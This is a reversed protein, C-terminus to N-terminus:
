ENFTTDKGNLLAKIDEAVKRSTPNFKRALGFEATAKEKYDKDNTKRYMKIYFEGLILHLHFNNPSFEIAKKMLFEADDYYRRRFAALGSYLNASINDPNRVLHAKMYQHGLEVDGRSYYELAFEYDSFIYNSAAINGTFGAIRYLNISRNPLQYQTLVKAKEMIEPYDKRAKDLNSKDMLLHTIPYRNFFVTDVNAVGFMHILNRLANNQTFDAAYPGSVVAEPSLTTALDRSNLVTNFAVASTWQYYKLGGPIVAAAVALALFTRGFWAPPSFVSPALRMLLFVGATLIIAALFLVPQSDIFFFPRGFFKYVPNLLQYIPILSVVFLFVPFLLYGKRSLPSRARQLVNAAFVGALGCVPYIMITQYRPPRYNWIMLAGYASIVLAIMFLLGPTLGYLKNLWSKKFGARFIFILIMGWALLAPAVMRPFLRSRAGFSVFNYIFQELSKLAEPIGYLGLAQEQVYGTVSEAAQRYSFFYWFILIALFGVIFFAYRRLYVKLDPKYDHFYEYLAYFFFAPLYILGIIKGFFIGVALSIGALTIAYLRKGYILITFSLIAFFNMSNELFSLRGFFIQNYNSLIFIFYFLAAINGAARRLVFYFLILTPFSFLVGVLNSQLYGVGFLKFIVVSALTTASKLFFVLRYDHLPNFSGWLVYNRAYSIYQAPDTYIGQSFSLDPPPDASLHNIRLILAIIALLFFIVTELRASLEIKQEDKL